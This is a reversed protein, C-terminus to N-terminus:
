ALTVSGTNKESARRIMKPTSPLVHVLAPGLGWVFWAYETADGGGGTFSPRNPLVYISPTHSRMYEARDASALFNIRLLFVVVDAVEFSRKVFELAKIYPPNGFAVAYRGPIPQSLPQILVNAGTAELHPRCKEQIEIATWSIDQRHRAVAKILDGYGAGPELWSGGPLQLERLLADVCWGPTSYLDSVNRKAGRNTASM